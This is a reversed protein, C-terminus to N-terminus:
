EKRKKQQELLVLDIEEDEEEIERGFGVFIANLAANIHQPTIAFELNKANLFEQDKLGMARRALEGQKALIEICKAAAEIGEASRASIKEYYDKGIADEIEFLAYGNFLLIYEEKGIMVSTAKAMGITIIKM